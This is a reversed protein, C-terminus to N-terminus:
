KGGTAVQWQKESITWKKHNYEIIYDTSNKRNGLYKITSGKLINTKHIKGNYKLYTRVGIINAKTVRTPSINAYSKEINHQVNDGINDLQVDSPSKFNSNYSKNLYAVYRNQIKITGAKFPLDVGNTEIRYKKLKDEELRFEYITNKSIALNILPFKSVAYSVVSASSLAKYKKKSENIRFDYLYKEKDTLIMDKLNYLARYRRQDDVGYKNLDLIYQCKKMQNSSYGIKKIHIKDEETFDKNPNKFRNLDISNKYDVLIKDFMQESMNECSLPINAYVYGGMLTLLILVKRM